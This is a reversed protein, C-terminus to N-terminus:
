HKRIIWTDGDGTFTLKYGYSECFLDLDYKVAPFQWYDDGFIVGGPQLIDHYLTLELFTECSEHASDLYVFDIKYKLVKLMRAAVVSSTRIPIVTNTLNYNIMNTMFHDYIKPNGDSKNMTTAFGDGLWMNIDGCWTDICLLVGNNKKLYDGLLKASSGIFSGVEVGLKPSYGLLENLKFFTLEGIHAAYSMPIPITTLPKYSNYVNDCHFLRNCVMTFSPTHEEFKNDSIIKSLQPDSFQKKLFSNYYTTYDNKNQSWLFSVTLLAIIIIYSRKM